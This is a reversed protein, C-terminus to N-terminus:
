LSEIDRRKTARTSRASAAGAAAGRRAEAETARPASPPAQTQGAAFTPAQTASAEPGSNTADRQAETAPQAADREAAHTGTATPQAADREEAHADFIPRRMVGPPPPELGVRREVAHLRMTNSQLVRELHNLREVLQELIERSTQDEAMFEGAVRCPPAHAHTLRLRPSPEIISCSLLFAFTFLCFAFTFVFFLLSRM